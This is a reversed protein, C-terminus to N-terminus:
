SQSQAVKLQSLIGIIEGFLNVTKTTAILTENLSLIYYPIYMNKQQLGHNAYSKMFIQKVTSDKGPDANDNAMRSNIQNLDEQESELSKIIGPITEKELREIANIHNKIQESISDSTISDLKFYVSAGYNRQILETISPDPNDRINFLKATIAKRVSQSPPVSKFGSPVFPRLYEPHSQYVLIDVNQHLITEIIDPFYSAPVVPKTINAPATIYKSAVPNKGVPLGFVQPQSKDNSTSSNKGRIRDIIAKIKIRIWALFSKVREIIIKFIEKVTDGWGSGGDSETLIQTLSSLDKTVTELALVEGECLRPLLFKGDHTNLDFM